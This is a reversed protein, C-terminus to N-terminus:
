RFCKSGTGGIDYSVYFMLVSYWDKNKNRSGNGSWSDQLQFGATKDVYDLDDTFTKRFAWECGFNFRPTGKVKLGLGFPINACVRGKDSKYGTMGLGLLIYPSIRSSGPKYDPAGFNYFNMELQIGADLLQRDFHIDEGNMYAEPNEETTGSIGASIANAKISFRDNLHYRAMVGFSPHMNVFLQDNNADGMYFSSGGMLGLEMRYKQGQMGAPMLLLVAM